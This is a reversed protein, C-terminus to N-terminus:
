ASPNERRCFDACGALALALAAAGGLWLAAETDHPWKSLVLMPLAWPFYQPWGGTEQGAAYAFVGAILTVIGFGTAISFSRRFHGAHRAPRAFGPSRRLARAGYLLDQRLQDLWTWGWQDAAEERLRLTSGFNRRRNAPMMEQHAAMEEALQREIRRRHMLAHFRRYLKRMENM